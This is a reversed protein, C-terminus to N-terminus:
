HFKVCTTLTKGVSPFPLLGVLKIKILKWYKCFTTKPWSFPEFWWFWKEEPKWWWTFQIRGDFNGMGSWECPSNWVLTPSGQKSFEPSICANLSPELAIWAVYNEKWIKKETHQYSSIYVAGGSTALHEGRRWEFPPPSPPPCHEGVLISIM